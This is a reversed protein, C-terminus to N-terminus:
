WRGLGYPMAEVGAATGSPISTRAPMAVNAGSRKTHHIVNSKHGSHVVHNLLVGGLHMNKFQLLSMKDGKSDLRSIMSPLKLNYILDAESDRQMVGYRERIFAEGLSGGKLTSDAAVKKVLGGGSPSSAGGTAVSSEAGV